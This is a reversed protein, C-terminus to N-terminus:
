IKYSSTKYRKIGKGIKDMEGGVEGRAVVLKNEKDPLGNRNQQTTKEIGCILLIIRYKDKETRSIESLMIGELEIWTRAFLM